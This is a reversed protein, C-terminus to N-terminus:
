LLGPKGCDQIAKEGACKKCIVVCLNVSAWDPNPSNCDACLRNSQVSWIKQAVELNSLAGAVSQMM